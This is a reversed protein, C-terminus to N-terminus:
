FWVGLGVILEYRDNSSKKNYFFINEKGKTHLARGEIRLYSNPIPKYEFGLTLGTIDLGTLEHNENVVPGTLMEDPDSFFEGRIYSSWLPTFRYKFAALTSFMTATAASDSLKSNKQVGYNGELGVTIHKTKYVMILNSYSRTQDQPYDDDSEDSVLTSFTASLKDNPTWAVSAGVAKNKNNDVFNNFGNFANIQFMWKPSYEWTLKAGSMYYPEFYTTTAFSVAINERPQISELGIHTRFFGADLWFKGAIRFGLHAEQIMNFNPSWASRPTDGFFLTALGRLRRSQYKAGLQFINLGFQNSRPASTPFKQYGGAGASDTYYAYYTDIYGSLTFQGTTDYEISYPSIKTGTFTLDSTDAKIIQGYASVNVIVLLSVLSFRFFVYKM